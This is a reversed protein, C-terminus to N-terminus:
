FSFQNMMLMCARAYRKAIPLNAQTDAKFKLTTEVKILQQIFPDIALALVVIVTGLTLGLRHQM